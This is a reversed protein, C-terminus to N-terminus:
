LIKPGITEIFLSMNSIVISGNNNANSVCIEISNGALVSYTKTSAATIYNTTNAPTGRITSTDYGTDVGNFMLGVRYDASGGQITTVRYNLAYHVIIGADQLFTVRGPLTTVDYKPISFSTSNSITNYNGPFTTNNLGVQATGPMVATITGVGGAAQVLVYPRVALISSSLRGTSSITVIREETPAASYVGALRTDTQTNGIRITNSEAAVGPNGLYICNTNTSPSTASNAIIINSGGTSLNQGASDGLLINNSGSTLSQGSSAGIVTNSSATNTFNGASAGAFTNRTGGNSYSHLFSAGAQRIVGSTASTTAPIEFAPTSIKGADDLIALSNLQQKGSTGFWRAIARDTVGGSPTLVVDGWTASTGTSALLAQGFSPVAADINVLQIASAQVANGGAITLTKNTLTQSDSTGVVVGTPVVKTTTVPSTGAGVLFTNSTLTTAGTGGASVPLTGSINSFTLSTWGATTPSAAVLAQGATPAPVLLSVTRLQTADVTNTASSITKNTLTQTDSIGVVASIPAVYGTNITSTGNGILFNGAPLTTMGTGGKTVPVVGTINNFNMTTWGATTTTVAAMVQGATPAPVLLNVTRLQTADVTNTASSLVKNTLTQTDNIGVVATNPAVYTTNIPLTGDGVLFNGVPLSSLGTGGNAVPLIGSVMTAADLSTWVASTPTNAFLIEGPTPPTPSVQVLQIARAEVYNTASLIQKNTITQSDTDGLVAGAPVPKASQVPSLGDGVLFNNPNLFPTGTGGNAVPLVGTAASIDPAGWGATTASTAVLSQGLTPATPDIQITQLKSADLDNTASSMIKNLLTQTDTTGVVIGAPVVKSTQVASTGNGTLFTGATLSSQGTGGNPVPLVGSVNTIDLDQWESNTSSTAQLIQGAAPLTASVQVTRIASAETYNTLARIEKNTLTQADSTGVVDGAPVDKVALIPGTGNGQLFKNALFSTAGTGGEPVTVTVNSSSVAVPSFNFIHKSM